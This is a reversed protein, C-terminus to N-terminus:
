ENGSWDGGRAPRTTRRWVRRETRQKPARLIDARRRSGGREAIHRALYEADRGVGGILGSTLSYLFPVGLLHLGPQGTVVGRQHPPHAGVGFGPLAIWRFDLDYGTAWVVAGIPLTLGGELQPRGEHVGVTRPVRAVGARELDKNSVRIRPSGKRGASARVRRGLERETNLVRHILWWYFADLPLPLRLPLRGTDRGSLWTERTQALELAIEAGSNGAGVVLTPGSRLQQPNQYDSSHVQQIGPNLEAAFSPLRPKQFSGTAVVVRPACLGHFGTDVLYHDSERSLRVVRMGTRLPLHFRRAYAQLYDAFEDKRPFSRPEAPFPMGPLGDHIAPTFLRLSDWRESWSGGIRQHADLIVFNREQRALYYGMALGAQGGGIVITDFHETV